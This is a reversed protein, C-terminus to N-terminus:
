FKGGTGGHTRGSSSTHTTSGGSERGSSRPTREQEEKRRTTVTKNVMREWNQSLMLSGPVAYDEAETKRRVSTLRAKKRGAMISAFLLGLLLDGLIWFPDVSGKPMNGVDYPEGSKAQTIFKDCLKAYSTFAKSYNGSSLSPQFKETIYEMGADTFATIAFGSTSLQWDREEMSILLLIGDRDEGYGFGNYDFFDDAYAEATKGELGNVAAVAVDCQQRESIEDLQELLKTEEDETLLDAEDVLRPLRREEARAVAPVPLLLVALLVALFTRFITRKM